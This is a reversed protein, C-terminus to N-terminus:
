RKIRYLNRHKNMLEEKINVANQFGEALEELEAKSRARAKQAALM